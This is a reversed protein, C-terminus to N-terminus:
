ENEEGINLPIERPQGEIVAFAKLVPESEDELSLIVYAVDSTYALRLDEQSMRAPSAPHSHWIGLMKEGAARLQKVAAFQEEPLFSFHEPSNDANTMEIFVSVRADEGGLIACAEVPSKQRALRLMDAYVKPDITLAEM